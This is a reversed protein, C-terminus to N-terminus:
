RVRIDLVRTCAESPLRICTGNCFGTYAYTRRFPAKHGSLGICTLDCYVASQIKPYKGQPKLEPLSPLLSEFM